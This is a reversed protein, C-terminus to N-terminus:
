DSGKINSNKSKKNNNINNKDINKIDKAKDSSSNKLSVEEAAKILLNVRTNDPPLLEENSVYVTDDAGAPLPNNILALPDRFTAIISGDLDAMFQGNDIRSGTFVWYTKEMSKNKQQDYVLEEARVRKTSKDKLEWEVFIDLPDGEPITSDGQFKLNNKNKFGLLLLAVQIDSPKADIKLVSEHLKGVEDQCALYEVLGRQMNISGPVYIEKKNKNLMVNGIKYEDPGIQQINSKKDLLDKTAPSEAYTRLVFLSFLCIFFVCTIKPFLNKM